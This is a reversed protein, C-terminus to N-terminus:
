DTAPPAWEELLALWTDATDPTLTINSGDGACCDGSFIISYGDPHTSNAWKEFLAFQERWKQQVPEWDASPDPGVVEFEVIMGDNVVLRYHMPPPETGALRHFLDVEVVACEVARGSPVCDPTSEVRFVGNVALTQFVFDVATSRGDGDWDAVAQEGVEEDLGWTENGYRIRFDSSMLEDGDNNEGM